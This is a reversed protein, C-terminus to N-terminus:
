QMNFFADFYGSKISCIALNRTIASLTSISCLSYCPFNNKSSTMCRYRSQSSIPMHVHHVDHHVDLYHVIWGKRLNICPHNNDLNM